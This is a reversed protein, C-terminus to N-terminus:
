GRLAARRRDDARSCARRLLGLRAVFVAGPAEGAAPTLVRIARQHTDPCILVLLTGIRATENRNDFLAYVRRHDIAKDM